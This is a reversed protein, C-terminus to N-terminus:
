VDWGVKSMDAETQQDRDALVCTCKVCCIFKGDLTLVFSGTEGCNMCRVKFSEGEASMIHLPIGMMKEIENSV